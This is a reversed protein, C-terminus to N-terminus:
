SLSSSSKAKTLKGTLKSGRRILRRLIDRSTMAGSQQSHRVRSAQCQRTPLPRPALAPLARAPSVDTSLLLFDKAAEGCQPSVRTPACSLLIEHFRILSAADPFRRRGLQALLKQARLSNGPEFRTKLGSLRDLLADLTNAPM